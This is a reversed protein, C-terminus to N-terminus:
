LEAGRPRRGNSARLEAHPSIKFVAADSGISPAHRYERPWFLIEYGAMQGRQDVTVDVLLTHALPVGLEQEPSAWTQPLDSLTLLEAPRLINSPVDNAVARVTIGPSILQLVLM